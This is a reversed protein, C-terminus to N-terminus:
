IKILIKRNNLYISILVWIFLHIAAYLFSGTYNGIPQLFTTYIYSKLTIHKGNIVIPIYYLLKATVSSAVYVLLANRSLAVLPRLIPESRDDRTLIELFILILSAWGSTIFTYSITWLQKNLPVRLWFLCGLLFCSAAFIMLSEISKPKNFYRFAILGLLTTVVSGLSSILGEPENGGAWKYIHAKGLVWTDFIKQINNRISIDYGWFNSAIMILEYLAVVIFVSIILNKISQVHIYIFSVVLYCIAIRQLVGLIRLDQIGLKASFLIKFSNLIVGLSFIILTRLIIKRYRSTASSKSSLGISFGMVFLFFPFVLDTFTCGHWKRTVATPM